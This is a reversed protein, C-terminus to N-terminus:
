NESPEPGGRTGARGEGLFREVTEIVHADPTLKELAELVTEQDM